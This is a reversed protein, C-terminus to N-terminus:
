PAGDANGDIVDQIEEDRKWIAFVHSCVTHPSNNIVDDTFGALRATEIIADTWTKGDGGGAQARSERALVERTTDLIM